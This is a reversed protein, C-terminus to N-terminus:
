DIPRPPAKMVPRSAQTTTPDIWRGDLTGVLGTRPKEADQRELVESPSLPKTVLDLFIDSAKSM